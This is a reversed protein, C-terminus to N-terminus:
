PSAAPPPRVILVRERGSLDKEVTWERWGAAGYIEGLAPAQGDGFEALLWGDPELWAGAASALRRHIDLGDPGGDLAVRPDHDRVEPELTAIEASAVYPPNSVVLGFRGAGAVEEPARRFGDGEVWRLRDAVGARGANAAAVALAAPSIDLATVRAAPVGAALSIALCGSGTGFDLARPEGPRSALRELALQALRETEPRPVLVDPTVQLEHGLFGTTGTLHQLPARNGRRRVLERLRDLEAPGLARDFQLYLKLRPLQLVHALLLEVQLRPSEVGRRALYDTSRQIVELITLAGSRPRFAPLNM